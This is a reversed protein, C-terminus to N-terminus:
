FDLKQLNSPFGMLQCFTKFYCGLLICWLEAGSPLSVCEPTSSVPITAMAVSFVHGQGEHSLFRVGSPMAPRISAPNWSRTFLLDPFKSCGDANPTKPCLVFSDLPQNGM